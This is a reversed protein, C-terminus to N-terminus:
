RMAGVLSFPCQRSVSVYTTVLFRGPFNRYKAAIRALAKQRRAQLWRRGDIRYFNAFEDRKRTAGPTAHFVNHIRDM